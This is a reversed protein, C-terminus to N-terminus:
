AAARESEVGVQTIFVPRRSRLHAILRRSTAPAPCSARGATCTSSGTSTAARSARSGAKAVWSFLQHRNFLEFRHVRSALEPDRAFRQTLRGPEAGARTTRTRRWSPPAPRSPRRSRETSERTSPSSAACASRSRTRSVRPDDDHCSLELGPVVLLGYQERPAPRGRARGRWTPTSAHRRHRGVPAEPATRCVHDTVCLVDFGRMGYLDVLGPVSLVGDSWTTHAHLEALLAGTRNRSMSMTNPVSAARSALFHDIELSSRARRTLSSGHDVQTEDDRRVRRSRTSAKRSESPEAWLM